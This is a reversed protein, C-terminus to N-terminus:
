FTAGITQQVTDAQSTIAGEHSFTLRLGEQRLASSRIFCPLAVVQLITGEPINRRTARTLVSTESSAGLEESVDTRVLAVRRLMESPM